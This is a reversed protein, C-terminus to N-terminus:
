GSRTSPDCEEVATTVQAIFLPPMDQVKLERNLKENPNFIYRM